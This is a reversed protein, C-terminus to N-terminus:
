PDCRSYRRGHMPSRRFGIKMTDGSGAANQIVRGILAFDVDLSRCLLMTIERLLEGRADTLRPAGAVQPRPAPTPQPLAEGPVSM